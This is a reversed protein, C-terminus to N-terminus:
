HKTSTAKAYFTTKETCAHSIGRMNYEDHLIGNGTQVVSLIEPIVDTTTHYDLHFTM